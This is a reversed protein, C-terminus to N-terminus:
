PEVERDAGGASATGGHTAMARRRWRETDEVRNFTNLHFGAVQQEGEELLSAVRAVLADPRYARRILRGLLGGHRAVYRISDGVGVRLAIELLKRRQLPGPLGIYVPLSIGAGRIFGIWRFTAEADFCIQTVAYAAFRQKSRLQRTLVDDSVLPHGEPYGAVGVRGFRHGLDAIAELLELASAYPGAPEPEDGGVAFIEEVGAGALREVIGELHARSTIGRASVHPVVRFGGAALLDCADLTPEIGRRPSCTVTVTAGAPLWRVQQDLGGIPVVEFRARALMGAVGAVALPGAEPKGADPGERDLEDRM